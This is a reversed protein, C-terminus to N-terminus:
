VILWPELTSRSQGMPNLEGPTLIRGLPVEIMDDTPDQAPSAAASRFAVTVLVERPPEDPPALWGHPRDPRVAAPAAAPAAPVALPRQRPAVDGLPRVRQREGHGHQRHSHNHLHQHPRDHLRQHAQQTTSLNNESPQIAHHHPASLVNLATSGFSISLCLRRILM